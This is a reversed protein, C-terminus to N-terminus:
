GALELSFGGLGASANSADANVCKVSIEDGPNVLVSHTTDSFTGAAAATGITIVITTDAGNLRVTLTYAGAAGNTTTTRVRFNRLIGSFPVADKVNNETANVGSYGPGAYNTASAASTAGNGNGIIASRPGGTSKPQERVDWMAKYATGDAKFTGTGASAKWQVKYIHSAATPTADVQEATFGTITAGAPDRLVYVGSTTGLLSVGDKLFDFTNTNGSGSNSSGSTLLLRVPGGAPTFTTTIGTLDVFTTSATTVDGSSLIVQGSGMAAGAGTIGITSNPIENVTWYGKRAAGDAEFTGTAAGVKWQVKYTHSGAVPAVDIYQLSEHEINSSGLTILAQAVGSTLGTLSVGDKLFDFFHYVASTNTHGFSLNLLVSGGATTITATIGTLDVYTTSATTVNGSGLAVNAAGLSQGALAVANTTALETLQWTAAYGTGMPITMTGASVKGQLKLTHSTNTIAATTAVISTALDSATVPTVTPSIGSAGGAMSVGDVLLDFFNSNNAASNRQAFQSDLHVPGGVTVMTGTFGTIDVYTTSATTFNASNLLTRSQSLAVGAGIANIATTPMEQVWFSSATTADAYFTGTGASVKWQVKYTHSGALPLSDRASVSVGTQSASLFRDIITTGGALNVADRLITFDTSNAGNSNSASGTLTAIVSGGVTTIGGSTYGTLDVLTTSATTIDGSTLIVQASALLAGSVTGSGGGGGGAIQDWTAGNSRYLTGPLSDNAMYLWGTNGAAAAPRGALTGALCILQWSPIGAQQVLAMGNSGAALRAIQGLASAYFTDGAAIALAVPSKDIEHNGMFDLAVVGLSLMANDMYATTSAAFACAFEIFTADIPVVINVVTLYEVAGGGSHYGSFTSVGGTGDTQIVSRVATATACKVAITLSITQGLLHYYGNAITLRQRHRTAGAGTGLVFTCAADYQSNAPKNAGTGDRSVSLTDTGALVISWSDATAAANATFPGNGSGWSEMGGNIALNIRAAVSSAFTPNVLMSRVDWLIYAQGGSAGAQNNFIQTCAVPFFVECLPWLGAPYSPPSPTVGTAGYTWLFNGANDVTLLGIYPNGGPAVAAPSTFPAGSTKRFPQTAGSQYYVPIAGVLVTMNPNPTQQTVFGSTAGGGYTDTGIRRELERLIAARTNHPGALVIDLNDRFDPLTATTDILSPYQAM